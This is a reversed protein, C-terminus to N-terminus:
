VKDQIDNIAETKSTLEALAASLRQDYASLLPNLYRVATSLLSVLKITVQGSSNILLALQEYVASHQTLTQSYVCQRCVVGALLVMASWPADPLTDM